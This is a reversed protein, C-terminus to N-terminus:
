LSRYQMAAVGAKIKRVKLLNCDSVKGNYNLYAQLLTAENTRKLSLRYLNSAISKKIQLCPNQSLKEWVYRYEQQKYLLTCVGKPKDFNEAQLPKWGAYLCHSQEPMTSLIKQMAILLQNKYKYHRQRQGQAKINLLLQQYQQLTLLSMLVFLLLITM